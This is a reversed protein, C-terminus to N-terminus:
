KLGAADLEELLARLRRHEERLDRILTKWEESRGHTELVRRIAVLHQAAQQYNDRGRNLILRDVYSRYIRIADDPYDAEAAEAVQVRYDIGYGWYVPGSSGQPADLLALAEKVNGEALHIQLVAARNGKEALTKLAGARMTEWRAPDIGAEAAQHALAQFTPFDPAIKFLRLRADMAEEPKGNQAYAAALWNLYGADAFPQKGETEWLREDVFKIARAPGDPQRGALINAFNLASHPDLLRRAALKTAEDIRGLHLLYLAQDWWLEARATFDLLESESLGTPNHLSVGFGIASRRQWDALAGNAADERWRRDLAQRDTESLVAIVPDTPDPVIGIVGRNLAEILDDPAVDGEQGWHGHGIFCWIQYLTELLEARLMEPLRDDAPLEAQHRLCRGLGCGASRIAQFVDDSEYDDIREMGTAAVASYVGVADAIRGAEEYQNATAMTEAFVTDPDGVAEGEDLFADLASRPDGYGWDDYWGGEGEDDYGADMAANLTRRIQDIPATVKAADGPRAPTIGPAVVPTVKEIVTEFAPELAVLKRIIAILDDREKGALIEDLSPHPEFAGPNASWTLLLAVMHKCFAGVPCTCSAEVVKTPGSAALTARVEYPGGSSGHCSASLTDGRRVPRYIMGQRFYSQGRKFSGPDALKQIEAPTLIPMPSPDAHPAAM